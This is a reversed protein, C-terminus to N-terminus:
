ISLGILELADVVTSSICKRLNNYSFCIFPFFTTELNDSINVSLARTMDESNDLLGANDTYWIMLVLPFSLGSQGM